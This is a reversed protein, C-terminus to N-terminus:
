HKYKNELQIFAEQIKVFANSSMVQQEESLISGTDPHFQSALMRYVRKIEAFDANQSVGLVKRAQSISETQSDRQEDLMGAQVLFEATYESLKSLDKKRIAYQEAFLYVFRKIDPRKAAQEAIVRHNELFGDSGLSNGIELAYEFAWFFPTNEGIVSQRYLAPLNRSPINLETLIRSTYLLVSLAPFDTKINASPEGSIIFRRIQKRKLLVDLVTDLLLGIILGIFAGVVGGALFGIIIGSIKSVIM